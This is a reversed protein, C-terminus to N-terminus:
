RSFRRRSAAYRSLGVDERRLVVTAPPENIGVEPQTADQHETCHSVRTVEGKAPNWFCVCHCPFWVDGPLLDHGWSTGEPLM